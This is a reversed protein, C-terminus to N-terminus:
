SDVSAEKETKGTGSELYMENTELESLKESKEDGDPKTVIELNEWTANNEPHNLVNNLQESNFKWDFDLDNLKNLEPLGNEKEYGGGPSATQM